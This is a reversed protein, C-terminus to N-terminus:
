EDNDKERKLKKEVELLLTAKGLGPRTEVSGLNGTGKAIQVVLVDNIPIQLRLIQQQVPMAM